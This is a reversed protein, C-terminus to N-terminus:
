VVADLNSGQWVSSADQERPVPNRTVATDAQHPGDRPHALDHHSFNVRTAFYKASNNGKPERTNGKTGIGPSVPWSTERSWTEQGVVIPSLVLVGLALRVRVEEAPVPLTQSTMWNGAACVHIRGRGPLLHIQRGGTGRGWPDCVCIVCIVCRLSCVFMIVVVVVVVVMDIVVVVSFLM